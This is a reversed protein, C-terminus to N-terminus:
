RGVLAFTVWANEEAQMSKIVQLIQSSLEKVEKGDM